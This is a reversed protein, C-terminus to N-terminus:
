LPLFSRCRWIRTGYPARLCYAKDGDPFKLTVWDLLETELLQGHRTELPCTVQQFPTCSTILYGLVCHFRSSVVRVAGPPMAPMLEATM